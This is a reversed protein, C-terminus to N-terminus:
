RRGRVGWPLRRLPQAGAARCDRDIAGGANQLGDGGGPRDLKYYRGNIKKPFLSAGRNKPQTIVAIREYKKFDKTKGLMGGPADYGKVMVPTVIYFEDDIPTVRNDIFHHYLDWPM